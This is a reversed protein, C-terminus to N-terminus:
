AFMEELIAALDRPHHAVADVQAEDFHASPNWKAGICRIGANKALLVDAMTDGVLVSDARAAGTAALAHFVMDPAPKVPATDPTHLTSFLHDVKNSALVSKLGHMGKNTAVGLVYGRAALEELVTALGDFLPECLVGSDRVNRLADRFEDFMRVAQARPIFTSIHALFGNFSMSLFAHRHETLLHAVGEREFVAHAHHWVFGESNALTGDCDFLVLKLSM